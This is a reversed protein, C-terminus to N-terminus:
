DFKILSVEAVVILNDKSSTKFSNKSNGNLIYLPFSVVLILDIIKGLDCVPSIM